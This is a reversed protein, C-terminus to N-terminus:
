PLTCTYKQPINTARDPDGATISGKGATCAYIFKDCTQGLGVQCTTTEGKSAEERNSHTLANNRHIEPQGMAPSISLLTALAALAFFSKSM